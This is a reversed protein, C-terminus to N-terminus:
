DLAGDLVNVHSFGGYGDLGGLAVFDIRGAPVGFAKLLFCVIAAIWCIMQISM